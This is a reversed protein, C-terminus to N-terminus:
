KNCDFIDTSYFVVDTIGYGPYYINDKTSVCQGNNVVVRYTGAPVQDMFCTCAQNMPGCTKIVQPPTSYDYLYATYGECNPVDQMNIKIYTLMNDHKFQPQTISGFGFAFLVILTLILIVKKGTVLSSLNIKFM